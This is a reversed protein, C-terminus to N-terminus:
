SSQRSRGSNAFASMAFRDLGMGLTIGTGYALLNWPSFIRGLLLAGPTTLRCADLWPTHVLRFLELALAISASILAATWPSQSPAALALLFFVMAAWLMSGGYKVVFGPFGFGLGYGRLALGLIVISLCLGVRIIL